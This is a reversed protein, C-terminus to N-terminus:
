QIQAKSAIAPRKRTEILELISRDEANWREALSICALKVESLISTDNEQPSRCFRIQRWAKEQLVTIYELVSVANLQVCPGRSMCANRAEKHM